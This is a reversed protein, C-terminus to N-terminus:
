LNKSCCSISCWIVDLLILARWCIHIVWSLCGYLLLILLDTAITLGVLRQLILVSLSILSLLWNTISACSCPHHSWLSRLHMPSITLNTSSACSHSSAWHHIRSTIINSGCTTFSVLHIISSMNIIIKSYYVINVM